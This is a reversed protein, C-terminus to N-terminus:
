KYNIYTNKCVFLHLKVILIIIIMSKYQFIRFFITRNRFETNGFGFSFRVFNKRYSFSLRSQFVSIKENLKKIKYSFFAFGFSIYTYTKNLHMYM